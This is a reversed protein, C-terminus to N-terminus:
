AGAGLVAEVAATNEPDVQAYGANILTRAGAKTVQVEDNVTYGGDREPLGLHRLDDIRTLPHALKITVKNPDVAAPVEAPASATVAPPASEDGTAPKEVPAPTEVAPADTAPTSDDVLLNQDETPAPTNKRSSTTM